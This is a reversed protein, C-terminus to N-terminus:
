LTEAATFAGLTITSMLRAFEELPVVPYVIWETFASILGAGLYKGLLRYKDDDLSGGGPYRSLFEKVAEDQCYELFPALIDARYFMRYIELDENVAAAVRRFFHYADFAPSGLDAEDIVPRLKEALEMRLRATFDDLDNYYTYFTKRNIGARAAIDTVTIAGFPKEGSLAIVATLIAQRTRRVRTNEENEYM